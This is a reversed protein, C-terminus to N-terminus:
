SIYRTRVTRSNEGRIAMVVEVRDLGSLDLRGELDEAIYPQDDAAATVKRVWPLRALEGPTISACFAVTWPEDHEPARRAATGIADADVTEAKADLPEESASFCIRNIPATEYARRFAVQFMGATRFRVGVVQELLALYMRAVRELVEQVARRGHVDFPLLAPRGQKAHFVANRIQVYVEDYLDGVPDSSSPNPAYPALGGALARDASALGRRFWAGEREGQHQPTLTTLVSELALYLNRFADFLDSTVQAQRFYRESEHWVDPPAPPPVGNILVTGLGGRIRLRVYASIRGVTETSGRWWVFHESDLDALVLVTIGKACLLDLGRQAEEVGRSRATEYSDCDSLGRVVVARFGERVEVEAGSDLTQTASDMSRETAFLLMGGSAAANDTGLAMGDFAAMSRVTCREDSLRSSKRRWCGAPFGQCRPLRM